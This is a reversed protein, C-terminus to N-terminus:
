RQRRLQELEERLTRIEAIAAKESEWQARMADAEAKLDDLADLALQKLEDITM